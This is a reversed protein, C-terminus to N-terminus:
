SVSCSARSSYAAASSGPSVFAATAGSQLDLGENGEAAPERTRLETIRREAVLERSFSQIEM